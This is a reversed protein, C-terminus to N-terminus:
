ESDETEPGGGDEDPTDLKGPLVLIARIVDILLHYFLFVLYAVFPLVAVCILSYIAGAATESAAELEMNTFIQCCAVLLWFTGCVVGAGFAVPVLRLAAKLLFLLVGVAEEGAPADPVVSINLASPNLAIFALYECVVFAVLAGPILWYTETQVAGVAMVLLTALGAVIALLALCDPFTTSFITGGTRRDLRDLAECFRRAVYQLVALSLVGLAGISCAEISGLKIGLAVTFILCLAIAAYLGYHGCGVFLRAASDVFQATFQTRVTELLVDFLHRRGELRVGRWQLNAPITAELGADPVNSDPTSTEADHPEAIVDAGLPRKDAPAADADFLGRVNQAAVWDAMGERWILDDVHLSGSAALQKLETSSVPGFQQDAQAYYWDIPAM